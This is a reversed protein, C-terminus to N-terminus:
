TQSIWAPLLYMGFGLLLHPFLILLALSAACSGYLLKEHKQNGFVVIQM